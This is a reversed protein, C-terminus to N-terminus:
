RLADHHSPPGRRDACVCRHVRRCRQAIGGGFEKGSGRSKACHGAIDSAMGGGVATAFDDFEVRGSTELAEERDVFTQLMEETM